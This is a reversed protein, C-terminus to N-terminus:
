NVKALFKEPAELNKLTFPRSPDGGSVLTPPVTGVLWTNSEAIDMPVILSLSRGRYISKTPPPARVRAIIAESM